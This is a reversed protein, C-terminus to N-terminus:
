QITCETSQFQKELAQANEVLELNNGDIRYTSATKDANICKYLRQKINAKIRMVDSSDPIALISHQDDSDVALSIGRDTFLAAAHEHMLRVTSIPCPISQMYSVRSEHYGYGGPIHTWKLTWKHVSNEKDVACVVSHDKHGMVSCLVFQALTGVSLVRAEREANHFPLWILANKFGHVMALPSQDLPINDLDHSFNMLYDICATHLAREDDSIKKNNRHEYFMMASEWAAHKDMRPKNKHITVVSPTHM